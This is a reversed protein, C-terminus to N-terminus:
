GADNFATKIDKGGSETFLNYILTDLKNIQFKVGLVDNAEACELMDNRIDLIKDKM